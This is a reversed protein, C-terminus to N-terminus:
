EKADKGLSPGVRVSPAHGVPPTPRNSHAEHSAIHDAIAQLNKYNEVVIALVGFSVVVLLEWLLLGLIFLEWSLGPQYRTEMGLASPDKIAVIIAILPLLVAAAVLLLENLVIFIKAVLKMLM